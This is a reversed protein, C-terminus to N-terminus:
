SEEVIRKLRALTSEEASQGFKSILRIVMSSFASIEPAIIEVQEVVKTSTGLDALEYILFASRNPQNAVIATSKVKIMKGPKVDMIECRAPATEEGMRFEMSYLSGVRGGQPSIQKCNRAKEHFVSWLDPSGLYHWVKEPSADILISDNFLM